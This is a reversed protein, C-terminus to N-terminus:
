SKHPEAVAYDSLSLSMLAIECMQFSSQNVTKTPKLKRIGNLPMM